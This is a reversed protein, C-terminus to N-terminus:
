QLNSVLSQTGNDLMMKAAMYLGEAYKKSDVEIWTANKSFRDATDMYSVGSFSTPTSSGQKQYAVVKQKKVVGEVELPKKLNTGFFVPSGLGQKGQHFTVLSAIRDLTEQGKLFGNENPASITYDGVMRLNTFIKVKAANGKFVNIGEESFMFYLNVNAIIADGLQDSLKAPILNDDIIGKKIRGNKKTGRYYQSQGEPLCMLVGPIGSEAVFPGTAREWDEYVETKGAEDATIIELGGAKLQAVFESYLQDTKAQIDAADIGGLGIAAKATADSRQGGGFTSGGREFDMAEMYIEFNVNFSAIYVKKPAKALKGKGMESTKANFEGLSQAQLSLTFLASFMLLLIKTKM